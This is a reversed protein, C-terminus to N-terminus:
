DMVQRHLISWHRYKKPLHSGVMGVVLIATLLPTKMGPLFHVLGLLGVHLVVLIGRVQYPWHRSHVIALIILASGTGLAAYDWAILELPFVHFVAGGFLLSTVAVHATRFIIDLARIWASRGNGNEAILSNSDKVSNKM